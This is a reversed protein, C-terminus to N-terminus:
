NAGTHSLSPSSARTAVGRCADVLGPAQSVQRVVVPSRLSAPAKPGDQDVLYQVCARRVRRRRSGGADLSFDERVAESDEGERLAIELEVEEHWELDIDQAVFTVEGTAPRVERMRALLFDRAANRDHDWGRLHLRNAVHVVVHPSVTRLADEGRRSRYRFQLPYRGLVGRIM